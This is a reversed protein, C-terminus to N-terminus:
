AGWATLSLGGSTAKNYKQTLMMLSPLFPLPPFSLYSPFSLSSLFFSFSFRPSCTEFFSFKQFFKPFKIEVVYSLLSSILHFSRSFAITEYSIQQPRVLIRPSFHTEFNCFHVKCIKSM